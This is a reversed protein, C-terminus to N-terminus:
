DTCCTKRAHHYPRHGRKPFLVRCRVCSTSVINTIRRHSLPLGVNPWRRKNLDTFKVTSRVRALLRMISMPLKKERPLQTCKPTVPYLLDPKGGVLGEDSQCSSSCNSPYVRTGDTLNAEYLEAFVLFQWALISGGLLFSGNPWWQYVAPRADYVTLWCYVLTSWPRM